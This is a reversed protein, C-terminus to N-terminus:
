TKLAQFSDVDNFRITVAKHFQEYTMTLPHVPSDM